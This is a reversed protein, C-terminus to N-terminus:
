SSPNIENNTLQSEKNEKSKEKGSEDDDNDDTLLPDVKFYLTSEEDKKRLFPVKVIQNYVLNGLVVIM